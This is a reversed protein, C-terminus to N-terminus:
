NAVCTPYHVGRYKSNVALKFYHGPAMGVMFSHGDDSSNSYHRENSLYLNTHSDPTIKSDVQRRPWGKSYFLDFYGNPNTGNVDELWYRLTENNMPSWTNKGMHNMRSLNDCWGGHLTQVSSKYATMKLAMFMGADHNNPSVVWHHSGIKAVLNKFEQDASNLYFEESPASAFYGVGDTLYAVCNYGKHGFQYCYPFKSGTFEIGTSIDVGKFQTIVNVEEGYTEESNVISITIEGNHDSLPVELVKVSNPTVGDLEETSVTVKQNAVPNLNADLIKVKLKNSAVGDALVGDAMLEVTHVATKADAIYKVKPSSLMKDTDNIDVVDFQLFGIKTSSTTIIQQITNSPNVDIYLNVDADTLGDGVSEVRLQSIKPNKVTALKHSQGDAVVTTKDMILQLNLNVLCTVYFSGTGVDSQVGNNLNFVEYGTLDDKLAIYSQFKPWENLKGTVRGLLWHAQRLDRMNSVTPISGITGCYALSAAERYGAITNAVGEDWVPNVSYGMNTSDSYRLPASFILGAAELAEWTPAKEKVSVTVKIMGVSYGGFHDAVVYSIVHDGVTAATFTLTKNTLSNPATPRVTATYSQVEILQWEQGDPETILAPINLDIELSANTLVVANGNELNYDYELKHIEPPQNISESITVYVTGMLNESPKDPNTLTYIIRNWGSLGTGTYTIVNGLATTTGENGESGQVTVSLVDLSYGVPWDKLLVKLDLEVPILSGELAMPYSLAPLIPDVAQTSFVKMSADDNTQANSVTFQYDCLAGSATEVDFGLGNKEPTNCAENSGTYHVSTLTAQGGRVYPALDIYATTNPKAVSFGDLAVIPFVEVPPPVLADGGEEAGCGLLALTIGSAIVCRSLFFNNM